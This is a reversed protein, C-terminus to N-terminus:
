HDLLGGPISYGLYQVGIRHAGARKSCWMVEGVIAEETNDKFRGGPAEETIIHIKEGPKV